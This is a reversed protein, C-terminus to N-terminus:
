ERSSVLESLHRGAQEHQSKAETQIGKSEADHRDQRRGSFHRRTAPRINMVVQTAPEKEPVSKHRM